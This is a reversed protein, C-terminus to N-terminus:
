AHITMMWLYPNGWPDMPVESMYPGGWNAFGAGNAAIGSNNDSLAIENDDPVVTECIDTRGSPYVGTEFYLQQMSKNITTLQNSAAGKRAEVQVGQLTTVVFSGLVGIIAIVTLMELLSFGKKSNKMKM